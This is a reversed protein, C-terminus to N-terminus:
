REYIGGERVPKHWPEAVNGTPTRIANRLYEMIVLQNRLIQLQIFVTMDFKDQNIVHDMSTILHNTAKIADTL